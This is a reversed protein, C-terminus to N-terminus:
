RETDNEYRINLSIQGIEKGQKILKIIYEGFKIEKFYAEGNKTIYSAIERHHDLLSIRLGKVFLGTELDKTTVKMNVYGDDIREIQVESEINSLTKKLHILNVAPEKEARLPVSVYGYSISLNGPNRIIDITEKTLKIIIDFLGKSAHKEKQKNLKIVNEIWQKPVDPAAEYTEDEKIKQHLLVLDMCNDCELLHKEVRERDSAKLVGTIYQFIIKDEPCNKSKLHTRKEKAKNWIYQITKDIEDM